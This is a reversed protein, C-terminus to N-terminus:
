GFSRGISVGAVMVAPSTLESFCSSDDSRSRVARLERGAALPVSLCCTSRSLTLDGPLLNGVQLAGAALAASILARDDEDV